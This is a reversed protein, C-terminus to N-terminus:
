CVEEASYSNNPGDIIGADDAARCVETNRFHVFDFLDVNNLLDNLKQVAEDRDKANVTVESEFTIVTTLEFYETDESM